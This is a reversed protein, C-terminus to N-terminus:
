TVGELSSLCGPVLSLSHQTVLRLDNSFVGCQRRSGGGGKKSWTTTMTVTAFYEPCGSGAENKGRCQTQVQELLHQYPASSM